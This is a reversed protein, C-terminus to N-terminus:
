RAFSLIVSPGVDADSADLAVPTAFVHYSITPSPDSGGSQGSDVYSGANTNNVIPLM